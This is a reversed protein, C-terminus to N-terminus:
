RSGVMLGINLSGITNSAIVLALAIVAGHGLTRLGFSQFAYVYLFEDITFRM